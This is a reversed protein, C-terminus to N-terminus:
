APVDPFESARREASGRLRDRPGARRQGAPFTVLSTSARKASPPIPWCARSGPVTGNATPPTRCCRCSAPRAAKAQASARRIEPRGGAKLEMDPGTLELWSPVVWDLKPLATELSAYSSDDWTVYFGITLPRSDARGRAASLQKASAKPMTQSSRGVESAATTSRAADGLRRAAPLLERRQAIDNATTLASRKHPPDLPLVSVNPFFLLSAVFLVLVITSVVSVIWGLHGLIVSRRKTPDFFVPHRTM